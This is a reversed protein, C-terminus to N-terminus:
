ISSHLLCWSPLSFFLSLDETITKLHLKEAVSFINFVHTPIHDTLSHPKCICFTKSSFTPFILLLMLAKRLSVPVSSGMVTHCYPMKHQGRDTAASMVDASSIIQLSVHVHILSPTSQKGM